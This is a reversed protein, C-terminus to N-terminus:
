NREFLNDAYDEIRQMEMDFIHQEIRRLREDLVKFAAVLNEDFKVDVKISALDAMLKGKTVLDVM